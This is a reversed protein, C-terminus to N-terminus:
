AEVTAHTFTDVAALTTGWRATLEETVADAV